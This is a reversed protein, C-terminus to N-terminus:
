LRNNQDVGLRKGTAWKGGEKRFGSGPMALAEGVQKRLAKKSATTHYGGELICVVIETQNMPKTLVERLVATLTMGEFPKVPVNAGARAYVSPAHGRHRDLRRLLGRETLTAIYNCVSKRRVVRGPELGELRAVIDAITFPEDAPIAAQVSASLPERRSPRGGLLDYELSAIQALVSEYEAQATTLAKDRRERAKLRLANFHDADTPTSM